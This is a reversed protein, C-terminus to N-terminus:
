VTAGLRRKELWYVATVIILLALSPVSKAFPQGALLHSFFSGGLAFVFGAYAWERVLRYRPQLIGAVGALYCFGLITMVYVPYGLNIFAETLLPNGTVKGIASVTLAIVFVTKLLRYVLTMM